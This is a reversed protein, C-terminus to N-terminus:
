FVLKINKEYAVIKKSILDLWPKRDIDSLPIGKSMKNINSKPHFCDADFFNDIASALATKEAPDIHDNCVGKILTTAM